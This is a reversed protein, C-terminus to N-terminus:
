KEEEAQALKEMEMSRYWQILEEHKYDGYHTVLDNYVIERFTVCELCASFLEKHPAVKEHEIVETGSANCEVIIDRARSEGIGRIGPVSDTTDGSLARFVHYESPTIGHTDIVRQETYLDSPEKPMQIVRGEVLLARFDHDASLIAVKKNSDQRCHHAIVDDAEYGKAYSVHAGWLKAWEAVRDMDGDQFIPSTRDSKYEPLVKRREESGGGADMCLLVGASPHCLERFAMNITNALGFLGGTKRGNSDEMWSMAFNSRAYVNSTDVLLLEADFVPM